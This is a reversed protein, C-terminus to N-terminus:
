CFVFFTVTVYAKNNKRKNLM